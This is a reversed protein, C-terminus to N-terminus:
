WSVRQNKNEQYHAFLNGIGSRTLIFSAQESVLTDLHAETQLVSCRLVETVANIDKKGIAVFSSTEGCLHAITQAHVHRMMSFTTQETVDSTKKLPIDWENMSRMITISRTLLIISVKPVLLIGVQVLFAPVQIDEVGKM